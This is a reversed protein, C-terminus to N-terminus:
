YLVEPAQTNPTITFPEQGLEHHEVARTIDSVVETPVRDNQVDQQLEQAVEKFDPVAEIAKVKGEKQAIEIMMGAQLEKYGGEFDVTIVGQYCKILEKDEFIEGSFDTGRIGITASVTKVKFREPAVKGIQGSVSRFFGRNAKMSLKEKKAEMSFEEFDFSSKAGITIVTNDNLIVQVQTKEKTTVEDGEEIEMGAKASLAADNRIVEAEGKLAVINGIGAWLSSAFLFFLLYKM